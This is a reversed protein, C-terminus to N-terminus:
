NFSPPASSCPPPAPALILPIPPNHTNCCKGAQVM